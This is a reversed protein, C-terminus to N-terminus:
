VGSIHFVNAGDNVSVGKVTGVQLQHGLRRALVVLQASDFTAKDTQPLDKYRQSPSKRLRGSLSAGKRLTLSARRFVM